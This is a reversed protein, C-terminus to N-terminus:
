GREREKKLDVHVKTVVARWILLSVYDPDEEYDGDIGEVGPEAQEEEGVLLIVHVKVCDSVAVFTLANLKDETSCAPNCAAMNAMCVASHEGCRTNQTKLTDKSEWYFYFHSFKIHPSGGTASPRQLTKM